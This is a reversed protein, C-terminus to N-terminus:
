AGFIQIFADNLFLVDQATLVAHYCEAIDGSIAIFIPRSRNGSFIEKVEQHKVLPNECLWISHSVGDM